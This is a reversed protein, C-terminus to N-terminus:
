RLSKGWFKVLAGCGSSGVGVWLPAMSTGHWIMSWTIDLASGFGFEAGEEMVALSRAGMARAEALEAVGLWGSGKDRVIEGCRADDIIRDLLFTGFRHFHTKVPNPVTDSLSLEDDVPLATSCIFGVVKQLMVPGWMM